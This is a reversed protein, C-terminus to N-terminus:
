KTWSRASRLFLNRFVYGGEEQDVFDAMKKKRLSLLHDMLGEQRSEYEDSTFERITEHILRVDAFNSALEQRLRAPNALSIALLWLRGRVPSLHAPAGAIVSILHDTGDWGGYRSGGPMPGPTQPPTGVIVDFRDEEGVAEFWSGERLEIRSELGNIRANHRAAALASPDVDTAIVQRAGLKAAAISLLGSGCGLDLVSEGPQVDLLGALEISSPPPMHVAQPILLEVLGSPLQILM